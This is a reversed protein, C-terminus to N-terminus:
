FADKWRIIRICLNIGLSGLALLLFFRYREKKVFQFDNETKPSRIKQLVESIDQLIVPSEISFYYGGSIEAIRMLGDKNLATIVKEGSSNIVYSGDSLHIAGGQETGTGVAIIPIGEAAAREAANVGKGSLEEGDTFLIIVQNVEEGKSFAGIGHDLGQETNSGPSTMVGTSLIELYDHLVTRDETSPVLTIADGKYACLAIRSQQLSDIIGGSIEVSRILRNEPIDRCLMSRSVDFLFVLDIGAREDKQPVRGWSFGTFALIMFVCFLLFTLASFFWKVTFVNGLHEARWAGSIKTLVRKGVNYRRWFIFLVPILLLLLM